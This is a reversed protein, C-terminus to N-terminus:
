YEGRKRRWYGRGEGLVFVKMAPARILIVTIVIIIITVDRLFWYGVILVVSGKM